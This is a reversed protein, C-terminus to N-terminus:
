EELFHFQIKSFQKCFTFLKQEDFLEHVITKLTLIRLNPFLFVLKELDTIDNLYKCHINLSRTSYFQERASFNFIQHLGVHIAIIKLCQPASLIFLPQLYNQRALNLECIKLSGHVHLETCRGDLYINQIHTPIEFQLDDLFLTNVFANKILMTTISYCCKTIHLIRIQKPLNQPFTGIMERVFRDNTTIFCETTMIIPNLFWQELHKMQNSVFEIMVYPVSKIQLIRSLFLQSFPGLICDKYSSNRHFKL